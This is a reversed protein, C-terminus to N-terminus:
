HKGTGELEGPNCFLGWFLGFVKRFSTNSLYLDSRQEGNEKKRKLCLFFFVAAFNWNRWAKGM